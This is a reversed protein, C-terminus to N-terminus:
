LPEEGEIVAFFQCADENPAAACQGLLRGLSANIKDLAQLREQVEIQKRQLLPRVDRFAGNSDRLALLEGIEPLTFGLEKARRIFRIRQIVEQTYSRYGSSRRPPPPILGQREYFRITEVGVNSQRAVQGITLFEM